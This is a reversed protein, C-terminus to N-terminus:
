YIDIINEDEWNDVGIGGETQPVSFECSLTFDDSAYRTIQEMVQHTVDYILPEQPTHQSGDVLIVDMALEYKADPDASADFTLMRASITGHVKESEDDWEVTSLRMKHSSTSSHSEGSAMYMRHAFGRFTAEVRQASSLNEIHASVTTYCTIPQLTVPIFSTTMERDIPSLAAYKDGTRTSRTTNVMAQTVGFNDLRWSALKLPENSVGSENDVLEVAFTDYDDVNIFEIFGDWYPDYISENFVVVSYSGIPVEIEGEFVSKELYRDFPQSGDKPFFRLSVRHVYDGDTRSESTPNIGSISWDIEVPILATSRQCVDDSLPRRKCSILSLLLIILINFKSRM